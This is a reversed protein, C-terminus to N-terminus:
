GTAAALAATAQGMVSSFPPPGTKVESGRESEPCCLVCSLFRVHVYM